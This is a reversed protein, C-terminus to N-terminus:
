KKECIQGEFDPGGDLGLPYRCVGSLLSCEQAYEADGVCDTTCRGYLDGVSSDPIFAHDKWCVNPLPCGEPCLVLPADVLDAEEPADEASSDADASADRGADSTFPSSPGCAMLLLLPLAM